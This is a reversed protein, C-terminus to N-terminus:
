FILKIGLQVNRPLNAQSTVRGFNSSLPDLIPNNFQPHNFANLFEGRLQLRTRETFPFNKILSIDWLNLPQSRLGSLRSPFTRVNFALRIRPDNRQKAPDIVGNTRVLADTFYFGSTDFVADVTSGDIRTRLTSPDGNFYLNGLELPRGSQAQWIGQVQWGGLVADTVGSWNTGWRRGKGFPLEWIGSLVLRHPADNSSIRKEYETDTPNLFSVREILKSWTYSALLTYDRTFRKEVRLQGAHYVSSGDDRRTRLQGFQPFPRLLQQRQTTASDLSTGPALGQFPNPVSATLFDITAQDRVPSTSLFREPIANLIDTETALDYGYNGIYALEFLWQGPIERELSLQWRQSQGNSRNVPIFDLDRGIFTALGLSTGSAAPLGDPFPDFLNARFTLGNDLTPVLNISQSFGAQQVGDIIFPVTYIAWGGRVVMREGLRYAFGLRPQINNKDAEWFGREGEGTFLLGGRVRFDQPAIEPIPNSAYAARAAAEIPSPTTEDFGRVNRNFRESTAGEYEYRVGLNLTLKPTVKWDDQFFLGHYLTQNSRATNRELLGGTPQGLLFAALDQGISASPSNDFPGRTFDTRFDYRGAANGLGSANERYVRFDYGVRLMHQGALRTMTPQFSYISHAFGAGLPDGLPSFEGIDFRPLYSLGTFLSATRSSFGLSAPNFAGESQRVTPSDFHTFGARFNFFTKPSATYIHDYTAGNNNRFLLTGTPRIGNVVGTWNGRSEERNNRTYRFFSTHKENFTFDLRLAESNFTDRRPNVSLFNNRGQADGPQNPPPYFQLYARAVASLREAPIINNPFPTRQIRDGVRVATLPDYIQIGLPLLASFDGGREALTPVTFQGPEPFADKLGEYAFFFFYRNRGNLLARGGEGFRPLIVPGGLTAGYRNYRLADRAQGARNLFFDNASLIDNRVFEYLSGHFDNTGNRLTVDINAGATHGQQADFSVTVVKFEQVADAPPVFAVRPGRSETNPSGDLTFENGGPAGNSVVSSTGLNDFPRSFKLDGTFTIGPTLRSLVFPNGDSLPLESIRRRDIVQGSSATAAELLPTETVVNVTEAVEGVELTLDLTLKDGVRVEIGQRLLKKFGSAEVAVDYKGPTLFLLTYDGSEDATAWVATNTATNTASVRAGPVVAGAADAVRGTISGRFEQSVASAASSAFILSSTVVLCLYFLRRRTQRILLNIRGEQENIFQNAWITM